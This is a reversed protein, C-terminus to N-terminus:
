TKLCRSSHLEFYRAIYSSIDIIEHIALNSSLLLCFDLYRLVIEAMDRLHSYRIDRFYSNNNNNNNNIKDHFVVEEGGYSNMVTISGTLNGNLPMPLLEIKNTRTPSQYIM